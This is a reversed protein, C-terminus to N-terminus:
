QSEAWLSLHQCRWLWAGQVCQAAAWPVSAPVEVALSRARVASGGMPCVSAGGCGPEKCKSRQRGHKCISAGGCGPEKCMSRQRGHSLAEAEVALSRACDRANEMSVSAPVVASRAVISANEMLVRNRSM